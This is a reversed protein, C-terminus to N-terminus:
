KLHKINLQLSDLELRFGKIEAVINDASTHLEAIRSQDASQGLLNHRKVQTTRTSIKGSYASRNAAQRKHGFFYTTIGLDLILSNYKEANPHFVATNHLNYQIIFIIKKKLWANRCKKLLWTFVCVISRISM